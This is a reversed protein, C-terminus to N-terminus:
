LFFSKRKNKKIYIDNNLSNHSFLLSVLETEKEFKKTFKSAFSSVGGQPITNSKPLNAHADNFLIRMKAKNQIM